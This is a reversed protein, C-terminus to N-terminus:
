MRFKLANVIDSKLRKNMEKIIKNRRLYIEQTLVSSLCSVALVKNRIHLARAKKLIGEGFMEVLIKNFEEIAQATEIQRGIGTTRIYKPLINKLPIFTMGNLCKLM